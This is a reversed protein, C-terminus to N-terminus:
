QLESRDYICFNYKIKNYDELESCSTMKWEPMLDINPFFTDADKFGHYVRTLYIRECYPLLENYISSGGIIFVKDNSHKITNLWDKIYKMDCFVVNDNNNDYKSPNSTIVINKRNPLPKKPLSDYTKRGMVVVSNTTLKKFMKLDEPIHVLLDNDKGIGWNNDACAIASIM